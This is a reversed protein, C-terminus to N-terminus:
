SHQPTNVTILSRFKAFTKRGIGKVRLLDTVRKFAAKSRYTIIATARTQGIGPLEMLEQATARNIDVPDGAHATVAAFLGLALLMTQLLRIM